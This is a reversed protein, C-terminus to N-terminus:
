WHKRPSSVSDTAFRVGYADVGGQVSDIAAQRSANPSLDVREAAVIVGDSQRQVLVAVADRHQAALRALPLSVTIPNGDWSGLDLITRVVNRYRITRGRNEGGEIAVDHVRDFAMLWVRCPRQATAGLELRGDTVKIAPGPQPHDRLLEIAQLVRGRESGVVNIRGGVVMQPTYLGSLGLDRAYAQQRETSAQLGLTDPWGLRDWYTIHFSLPLVDATKTLDGLVADAPPCSDCGQSTFLEVVVPTPEAAISPAPCFSAAAWVLAAAALPTVPDKM